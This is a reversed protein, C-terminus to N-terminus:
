SASNPGVSPEITSSASMTGESATLKIEVSTSRRGKASITRRRSSQAANGGAVAISLRLSCREIKDIAM